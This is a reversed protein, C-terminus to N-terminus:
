EQAALEVLLHTVAVVVAAQTLQAMLALLGGQEVEAMVALLVTLRGGAALMISQQAQLLLNCGLVVLGPQEV